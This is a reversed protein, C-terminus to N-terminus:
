SAVDRLPQCHYLQYQYGYVGRRFKKDRECTPPLSIPAYFNIAWVDISQSIRDINERLLKTAPCDRDCYRELQSALLFQPKVTANVRRLEWALGMMEGVQVLSNHTTAILVPLPASQQIAPVILEPRYYKHYGFNTAVITSSVLGMVLVITVASKGSVWKALSPQHQWCSALSLGIALMIGPFYVFHYRAGRTIDIGSLWTIALYLGIASITFCLTALTGIRAQPQQLQLQWGRVLLPMAWIFFILMLIASLIVIPINLDIPSDSFFTIQPLETVEVLLLSMMSITAGLIQFLPNFKDILKPPQNDIWINALRDYNSALLWWWLLAGAATGVIAILLRLWSTPMFNKPLSLNEVADLHAQIWRNQWLWVGVLAIAEACLAVSFLYHTGLGLINAIVWWWIIALPLKQQRSFYRCAIALCSMSIFVWVIALSYHRAEQSIFVGYPSVAVMAATFNAITQAWRDTLTPDRHNDIELETTFRPKFALYSCIYACPITLIGCVAALARAGWLNVLGGVNPFLKVWWYTLAFYIPPQRDEIAVRQIIDGITASTDPILPALLDSLSIVRDLPISKFSNGLSLVLTRFEDTWPPKGDLNILRLLAGLLTWLLLWLIPHPLKRVEIKVLLM